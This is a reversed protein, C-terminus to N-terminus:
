VNDILSNITQSEIIQPILILGFHLMYPNVPSDWHITCQYQLPLTNSSSILTRIPLQCLLVPLNAGSFTCLHFPRHFFFSYSFHSFLM